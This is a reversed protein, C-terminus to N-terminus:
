GQGRATLFRIMMGLESGSHPELDCCQWAFPQLSCSDGTEGPRGKVLWRPKLGSFHPLERQLDFLGKNLSYHHHSPPAVLPRLFFLCVSNTKAEQLQIIKGPHLSWGWASLLSAHFLSPAAKGVHLKNRFFSVRCKRAPLLCHPQVALAAPHHRSLVLWVRWAQTAHVPDMCCGLFGMCPPPCLKFSGITTGHEGDM